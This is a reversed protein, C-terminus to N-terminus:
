QRASSSLFTFVGRNGCRLPRAGLSAVSTQYMRRQKATLQTSNGFRNLIPLIESIVVNRKLKNISPKQEEKDAKLMAELEPLTLRKDKEEPQKPALRSAM